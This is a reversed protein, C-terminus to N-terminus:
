TVLRRRSPHTPHWAHRLTSGAWLLGFCVTLLSLATLSGTVIAWIALVLAAVGVTALFKTQTSMRAGKSMEDGTSGLSCTAVGLLLIAAAAWRISSGVLPVNWSEHAAAFVLVALLTFVTALADKRTLAM